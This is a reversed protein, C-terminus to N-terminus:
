RPVRPVRRSEPGLSRPMSCSEPIRDPAPGTGDAAVSPRRYAPAVLAPGRQLPSRVASGRAPRTRKADKAATSPLFEPLPSPDRPPRLLPGLVTVAAALSKMAPRARDRAATGRCGRLRPEARHDPEPRHGHVREVTRRRHLS